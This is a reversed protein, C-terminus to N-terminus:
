IPPRIGGGSMLIGGGSMLLCYSIGVIVPSVPNM